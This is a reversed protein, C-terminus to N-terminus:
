IKTLRDLVQAPDFHHLQLFNDWGRTGEATEIASNRLLGGWKRHHLARSNLTKWIPNANGATFLYNVWLNRDRGKQISFGIVESESAAIRAM